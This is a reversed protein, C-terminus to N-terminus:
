SGPKRWATVESFKARKTKNKTIGESNGEKGAEGRSKMRFGFWYGNEPGDGMVRSVIEMEPPWRVNTEPRSIAHIKLIQANPRM